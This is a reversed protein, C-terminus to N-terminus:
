LNCEEYLLCNMPNHKPANEAGEVQEQVRFCYKIILITLVVLLCFVAFRFVQTLFDM